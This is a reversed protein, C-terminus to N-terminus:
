QNMIANPLIHKVKSDSLVQVSHCTGTQNDHPIPFRPHKHTSTVAASMVHEPPARQNTELTRCTQLHALHSRRTDSDPILNLSTLLSLRTKIHSRCHIYNYSYQVLQMSHIYLIVHSLHMRQPVLNGGVGRVDRCKIRFRNTWDQIHNM